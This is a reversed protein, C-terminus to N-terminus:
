IHQDNRSAANAVLRKVIDCSRQVDQADRAAEIEVSVMGSFPMQPATIARKEALMNAENIWTQFRRMKEAPTAVCANFACDGVVADALHGIGHDSIHFHCILDRISSDGFVDSPRIGALICHPIDINFGVMGQIPDTSLIDRFRRVNQINNLAFLPGPEVGIAFALNDIGIRRVANCLRALRREVRKFYKTDTLRVGLSIAESSYKVPVLGEIRSGAVIEITRIDDVKNLNLERALRALFCLASIAKNAHNRSSGFLTPIYTAMCRFSFNALERRRISTINHCMEDLLEARNPSHEAFSLVDVIPPVGHDSGYLRLITTLIEDRHMFAYLEGFGVSRPWFEMATRFDRAAFSTILGIALACQESGNHQKLDNGGNSTIVGRSNDEAVIKGLKPPMITTPHGVPISGSSDDFQWGGSGKSLTTILYTAAQEPTVLASSSLQPMESNWFRYQGEHCKEIWIWHGVFQPLKQELEYGCAPLFTLIEDPLHFKTRQGDAWLPRVLVFDSNAATLPDLAEALARVGHVTPLFSAGIMSYSTKYPVNVQAPLVVAQESYRLPTGRECIIARTTLKMQDWPSLPLESPDNVFILVQTQHGSNDDGKEAFRAVDSDNYVAGVAVVVHDAHFQSATAPRTNEANLSQVSRVFLLTPIASRSYVRVSEVTDNVVDSLTTREIGNLHLYPNTGLQKFYNLLEIGSLGGLPFAQKDKSITAVTIEALGILKPTQTEMAAGSQSDFGLDTQAFTHAAIMAACSQACAAGSILESLASVFFVGRCSRSEGAFWGFDATAFCHTAKHCKPPVFVGDSISQYSNKEFLAQMTAADFDYRAEKASKPDDSHLDALLNRFRCCRMRLWNASQFRQRLEQIRRLNLFSVDDDNFYVRIAFRPIDLSYLQTEGRTIGSQALRWLLLSPDTGSPCLGINILHQLLHRFQIIGDEGVYQEVLTWKLWNFNGL